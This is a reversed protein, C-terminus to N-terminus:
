RIGARALLDAHRRSAEEIWARVRPERLCAGPHGPEGVWEGAAIISTIAPGVASWAFGRLLDQGPWMAPHDPDIVLLQARAGVEIVGFDLGDVLRSPGGWIRYLNSAPDLDARRAHAARENEVAEVGRADFDEAMAHRAGSHTVRWLGQAALLRLEKQVDMSDNSAGCDTGVVWDLGAQSWEEVPAPFGFQMQSFPNAGLVHRSPDLRRLDAASVFLGHVLLQPVPADLLGERELWELPSCGHLELCRLAEQASQAVHAHLLLGRSDALQVAERWLGASVTDTAHPGLAAAIGCRKWDPHDLDITEQLARAASAAAPGALDQLTSAVVAALGCDRAARATAPAHYYHDFVTGVGHLLCELGAVRAFAEVDAEELNEEVRFFLDEVLNGQLLAQSTLGRCAHLALHTHANVFAPALVQDALQHDEAAPPGPEVGVIVGDRISVRAEVFRLETAARGLLCRRSHLHLEAM